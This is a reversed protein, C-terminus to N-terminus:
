AKKTYFKCPKAMYYIGKPILKYKVCKGSDGIFTPGSKYYICGRLCQPQEYTAM